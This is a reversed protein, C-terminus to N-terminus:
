RRSRNATVASLVDMTEQAARRWTFRTVRQRGSEILASRRGHDFLVRAIGRRIDETDTPDVLEAAQGVVEPIASANAAVVPCGVAMAELPPLGFTEYLSPYVFVAAQSYQAPLEDHPVAGLLDVQDSVGLDQAVKRLEDATVDADGGIIRLRHPIRDRHRLLSFAEILRRTNKFRYLTSVTLIYPPDAGSREGTSRATAFARFLGHQVVHIKNVPVGTLRATDERATSSVAIVADAAHLSARVTRRLYAGRFRGFVPEQNFFQLSQVIVVAPHPAMFPLVNCTALFVDLKHGHLVSPYISNQYLVRLLRGSPVGPCSVRTLHPLGALEPLPVRPNEFLVFDADTGLETLSTLLNIMMPRMGGAGDELVAGPTVADIGVRM